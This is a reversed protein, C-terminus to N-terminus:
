QEQMCGFQFKGVYSVQFNDLDLVHVGFTTSSLFRWQVFITILASSVMGLDKSFCRLSNLTSTLM